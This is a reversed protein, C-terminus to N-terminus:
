HPGKIWHLGEKIWRAGDGSIYIKDVGDLDYAEDLYNAVELWLDENNKLSGTFYRKNILEYRGKSKLKRGEHVYVLKIERNVGDQMAVHDEDAE